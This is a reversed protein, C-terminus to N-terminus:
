YKVAARIRSKWRHVHNKEIKQSLILLLMM